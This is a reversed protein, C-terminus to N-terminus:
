QGTIHPKHYVVVYPDGNNVVLKEGMPDMLSIDKGVNVM